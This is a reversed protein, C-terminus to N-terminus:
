LSVKKQKIGRVLVTEKGIGTYGGTVVMVRGSLDPISDPSWEPKPPFM